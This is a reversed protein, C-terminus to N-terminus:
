AHAMQHQTRVQQAWSSLDSATREFADPDEDLHRVEQDLRGRARRLRSRVTGESVGLADAIQGASMAEWFYLELVLQDAARLRRLAQLALEEEARRMLMASAGPRSELSDVTVAASREAQNRQETHHARLVNRAAAFIYTRFDSRGAFRDRGEVCALLTQQVLDEYNDGARKRFFRSVTDLHRGFLQQGAGLDGRRWRELLEFDAQM